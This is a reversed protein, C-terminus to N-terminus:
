AMALGPGAALEEVTHAYYCAEGKTCMGYPFFKCMASKYWNMGSTASLKQKKKPNAKNAEYEAQETARQEFIVKICESIFPWNPQWSLTQGELPQVLDAPLCHRGPDSMHQFLTTLVFTQAEESAGVGNELLDHARECFSKMWSHIFDQLLGLDPPDVQHTGYNASLHAEGYAAHLHKYMKKQQEEPIGLIGIAEKLMTDLKCEENWRTVAEEVFRRLVPPLVREFLKKEWFIGWVAKFLPPAFDVLEFWPKQYCAASMSNLATEVFEEVLGRAHALSARTAGRADAAFATASKAIYSTIRRTMEAHDWQPELHAHPALANGVADYLGPIGGDDVSAPVPTKKKGKGGGKGPMGGGMGNMDMGGGMAPMPNGAGLAQQQQQQQQMMAQYYQMQMAPDMQQMGAGHSAQM